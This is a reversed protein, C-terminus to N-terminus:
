RGRREKIVKNNDNEKEEGARTKVRNSDLRWSPNKKQHLLMANRKFKPLGQPSSHRALSCVFLVPQLWLSLSELLTVKVEESGGGM